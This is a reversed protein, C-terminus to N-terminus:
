ATGTFSLQVSATKGSDANQLEYKNTVVVKVYFDQGAGVKVSDGVYNGNGDVLYAKADLRNGFDTGEATGDTLIVPALYHNAVTAAITGANHVRLVGTEFAHGQDSNDLVPLTFHAAENNITSWGNGDNEVTLDVKGATVHTKATVSDNFSAGAGAGILALSGVAIAAAALAKKKNSIAM